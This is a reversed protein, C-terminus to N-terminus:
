ASLIPKGCVGCFRMGPANAAGCTACRTESDAAAPAPSASAATPAYPVGYSVGGVSSLATRIVFTGAAKDHWGQKKPDWAAWLLGIALCYASVVFMVWRLLARPVSILAGDDGIVGLGRVRMGPTRGGGARSWFYVFYATPIAWGVLMDNLSVTLTSIGFGAVYGVVLLILTDVFYAGLRDWWSAKVLTTATAAVTMQGRESEDGGAAPLLTPRWALGPDPSM